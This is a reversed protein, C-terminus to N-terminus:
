LGIRSVNGRVARTVAEALVVADQIGTNMGQGGSALACRRGQM